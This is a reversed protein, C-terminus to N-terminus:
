MRLASTGIITIAEVSHAKMEEVFELIVQLAREAAETSLHRNRDVGEGLRVIRLEKKVEKVKGQSYDALLMRCSNTGLDIAGIRM